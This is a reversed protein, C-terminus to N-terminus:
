YEEDDDLSQILAEGTKADRMVGDDDILVNETPINLQRALKVQGQVMNELSRNELANKVFTFIWSVAVLGAVIFFGIAVLTFNTKVWDTFVLSIAAAVCYILVPLLRLKMLGKLIYPLLVLALAISGIVILLQGWIPM